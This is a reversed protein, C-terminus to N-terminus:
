KNKNFDEIKKKVTQYYSDTWKKSYNDKHEEIISGDNKELDLVDYNDTVFIGKIDLWDIIKSFDKNFSNIWLNTNPLEYTSEMKCKEDNCYLKLDFLFYDIRDGFTSYRSTNIGGKEKPFFMIPTQRSIIYEDIFNDNFGVHEYIRNKSILADVTCIIHDVEKFGSSDLAYGDPDKYCEKFIKWGKDTYGYKTTVTDFLDLNFQYIDHYTLLMLSGGLNQKDKNRIVVITILIKLFTM